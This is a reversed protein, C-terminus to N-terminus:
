RTEEVHQVGRALKCYECEPDGCYGDDEDSDCPGEAALYSGVVDILADYDDDAM